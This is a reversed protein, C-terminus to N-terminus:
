HLVSRDIMSGDIANVTMVTKGQRGTKFDWVPILTYEGEKYPSQLLAYHLEISGVQVTDDNSNGQSKAASYRAKLGSEAMTLMEDFSMLMVNEAQKDAAEMPNIVTIGYVGYNNVTVRILERKGMHEIIDKESNYLMFNDMIGGSGAAYESVMSLIADDSIGYAINGSQYDYYSEYLVDSVGQYSRLCYFVYGVRGITNQTSIERAVQNRVTYIEFDDFGMANLTDMCLQEAEELSYNCDNDKTVVPQSYLNYNNYYVSGPAYDEFYNKDSDFLSYNMVSFTGDKGVMFEYQDGHNTGITDSIEYEYYIYNKFDDIDKLVRGEAPEFSYDAPTSFIADKRQLYQYYIEQQEEMGKKYYELVEAKTVSYPEGTEPDYDEWYEEDMGRGDNLIQDYGGKYDEIAYLMMMPKQLEENPNIKYAEGDFLVEGMQQIRESSLDMDRMTYIPIQTTEPVIVAADIKLDVKDNLAVPELTVKEPARLIDRISEGTIEAEHDAVLSDQGEKNVIIDTTPTERCGTFSIALITIMVLYATCTKKM